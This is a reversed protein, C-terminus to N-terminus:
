RVMKGYGCSCDFNWLYIGFNEMKREGSQVIGVLNKCAIDSSCSCRLQSSSCRSTVAAIKERRQAISVSFLTCFTQERHRLMQLPGEMHRDMSMRLRPSKCIVHVIIELFHTRVGDIAAVAFQHIDINLM